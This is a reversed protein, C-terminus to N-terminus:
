TEVTEMSTFLHHMDVKAIRLMSRKKNVKPSWKHGPDFYVRGDQLSSLLRSVDGGECLFVTSSYRFSPRGETSTEKLGPILATNAHKERWKNILKNFSWSAAITDMSDVLELAGDSEVVAELKSDFGRLRLTLGTKEQAVGVFHRGTMRWFGDKFYGWRKLFTELGQTVYVGGDPETTMLTLPSRTLRMPFKRVTTAKLEWGLYDPLAIGNPTIGFHAELTYGIANNAAGYPIVSGNGSLRCSPIWGRQSLERLRQIVSQRTDELRRYAATTPILGDWPCSCSVPHSSPFVAGFTEKEPVIGFVFLRGEDRTKMISPSSKCGRLFGSMRVEDHRTYWIVKTHPARHKLGDESLWSFPMEARYHLRVGESHPILQGTPISSISELSRGIYIQNKSNDNPSLMKAFIQSCGLNRLADVVEGWSNVHRRCAHKPNFWRAPM